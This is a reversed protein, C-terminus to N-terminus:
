TNRLYCRVRHRQLFLFSVFRLDLRFSIYAIWVNEKKNKSKRHSQRRVQPAAAPVDVSNMGTLSHPNLWGKDEGCQGSYVLWTTVKYLTLPSSSCSIVEQYIAPLFSSSASYIIGLTAMLKLNDLWIGEGARPMWRTALRLLSPQPQTTIPSSPHARTHVQISEGLQTQRSSNRARNLLIYSTYIKKIPEIDETKNQMM